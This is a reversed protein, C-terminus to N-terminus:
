TDGAGGGSAALLAKHEHHLRHILDHHPRVGMDPHHKWCLHFVGGAAQYKGWRLCRWSDHCTHHWWWLIGLGILTLMPPLFVSLFGSWENYQITPQGHPWCGGTQYATWGCHIM